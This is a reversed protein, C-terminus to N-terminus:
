FELGQSRAIERQEKRWETRRRRQKMDYSVAGVVALGAAMGVYLPVGPLMPMMALAKITSWLGRIATGGAAGGAAGYGSTGSATYQSGMYAGATSTWSSSLGGKAVGLGITKTQEANYAKMARTATTWVRTLQIGTFLVNAITPGSMVKQIDVISLRLANTFLLMRQTQKISDGINEVKYVVNFTITEESM